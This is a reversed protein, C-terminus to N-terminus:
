PKDHVADVVWCGRVHLGPGRCHDLIASNVCGADQLADALIPMAGFDRSEYMQRALSLATDTRWSPFFAVSQFPNGIIDRLMEAQARSEALQEREPDYAWKLGAYTRWNEEQTTDGESRASGIDRATYADSWGCMRLTESQCVAAATARAVGWAAMGPDVANVSACLIAAMATPNRGRDAQCAREFVAPLQGTPLCADVVAEMTEVALRSREDNFHSWVRRCCAAAFMWFMRDRAVGRLMQLMPTPDDCALWEAETM